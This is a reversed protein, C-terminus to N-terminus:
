STKVTLLKGEEIPEYKNIIEVSDSHDIEMEYQEQTLFEILSNESLIKRNETYTNFIETIEERHVICRYIARFEEITIRGQNQRDNEQQFFHSTPDCQFFPFYLPLTVTNM